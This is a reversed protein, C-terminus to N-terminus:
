IRKNIRRRRTKRTKLHALGSNVVLYPPFTKWIKVNQAALKFVQQHNFEPHEKKVRQVEQQMFLNYPSRTVKRDRLKEKEDDDSDDTTTTCDDTCSDDITMLNWAILTQIPTKRDVVLIKINFIICNPSAM